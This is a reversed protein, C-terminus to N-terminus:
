RVTTTASLLRRWGSRGTALRTGQWGQFTAVLLAHGFLAMVLARLVDEKGARMAVIAGIALLLLAMLWDALARGLAMAPLPALTNVPYCNVRDARRTDLRFRGAMGFGPAAGIAESVHYALAMAVGDLRGGSACQAASHHASCPFDGGSCIVLGAM